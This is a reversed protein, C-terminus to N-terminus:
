DLLQPYTQSLIQFIREVFENWRDGGWNQDDVDFYYQCPITMSMGYWLQQVETFHEILSDRLADQKSDLWMIMMDRPDLQTISVHEYRTNIKASLIEKLDDLDIDQICLQGGTTLTSYTFLVKRDNLDDLIIKSNLVSDSSNALGKNILGSAKKVQEQVNRQFEDDCDSHINILDTQSPNAKTKM